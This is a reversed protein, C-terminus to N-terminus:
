FGEGPANLMADADGQLLCGFTRDLATQREEQCTPKLQRVYNAAMELKDTPLSKLDEVIIEHRRVTELYMPRATRASEAM